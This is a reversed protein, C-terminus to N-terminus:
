LGQEQMQRGVEPTLLGLGVAGPIGYKKAISVLKDDFVVFNRSGEGATRSGQDLYKIGPVGAERLQASVASDATGPELRPTLNVPTGPNREQRIRDATQKLQDWYVDGGIRRQDYTTFANRVPESQQSLPKDWDLFHEPDANINVEYMHGPHWGAELAKAAEDAAARNYSPFTASDKKLAALASAKDEPFRDLYSRAIAEAPDSLSGKSLTDRYAQAVPEHEAFYLGHGYAQAGEGTGIKSMDFREFNHPSGHFAKIIGGGLPLAGLLGLGGGLWNRNGQADPTLANYADKGSLANGLGPAAYAAQEGLDGVTSDKFPNLAHYLGLLNNMIPSDGQNILANGVPQGPVLPKASLAKALAELDAM